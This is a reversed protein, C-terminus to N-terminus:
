RSREQERWGEGHGHTGSGDGRRDHGNSGVFHKALSSGPTPEIGQTVVGVEPCRVGGESRIQSAPVHGRDVGVQQGRSLHTEQERHPASMPVGGVRLQVGVGQGKLGSFLELDTQQSKQVTICLCCFPTKLDQYGTPSALLGITADVLEHVRALVTLNQIDQTRSKQQIGAPVSRAFWPDGQPEGEREDFSGMPTDKMMLGDSRSEFGGEGPFMTVKLMLGM